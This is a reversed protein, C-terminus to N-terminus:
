EKSIPRQSKLKKFDFSPETGNILRVINDKHRYLILIAILITWYVTASEKFLSTYIPLLLTAIIAAFASKRYIIAAIIWSFIIMTGIVPMLYLICGATTAIGKGGKFKLFLPFMHGLIAALAIYYTFKLHSFILFFDLHYYADNPYLNRYIMMMIVGKFADCLLTLLAIKKTSARLVNTTGINGSGVKRLDIDSFFHTFVLGFPISGLCYSLIIISLIPILEVM